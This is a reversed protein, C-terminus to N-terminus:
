RHTIRIPTFGPHDFHGAYDNVAKAVQVLGQAPRQAATKGAMTETGAGIAGIVAHLVADARPELKCDAVIGGIEAEIKGALATYRAPTLSGAHAAALQPEVLARIRNMGDRLPADTAWKRGHDLALRAHPAAEDGHSHGAAPAATAFDAGIAAAVVLAATLYRRTPLNMVIELPTRCAVM